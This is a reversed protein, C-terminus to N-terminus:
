KWPLPLRHRPSPPFPLAVAFYWWNFTVAIIRCNDGTWFGEMDLGYRSREVQHGGAMGAPIRANGQCRCGFYEEGCIGMWSITVMDAVKQFKQHNATKALFMAALSALGKDMEFTM